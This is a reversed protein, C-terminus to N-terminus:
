CEHASLIRIPTRHTNCFGRMRMAITFNAPIPRATIIGQSAHDQSQRTSVKASSDLLNQNLQIFMDDRQAPTCLSCEASHHGQLSALHQVVIWRQSQKHQELLIHQLGTTTESQRSHMSGMGQYETLQIYGFFGTCTNNFVMAQGGRDFM